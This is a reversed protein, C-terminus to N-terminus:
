LFRRALNLFTPFQGELLAAELEPPWVREGDKHSKWGKRNKIVSDFVESPRCNTTSTSSRPLSIAIDQASCLQSRAASAGM